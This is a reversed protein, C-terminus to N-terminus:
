PVVGQSYEGAAHVVTWGLKQGMSPPESKPIMKLHRSVPREMGTYKNVQVMDTFNVKYESGERIFVTFEAGSWFDAELLSNTEQDFPVYWFEPGVGEGSILCFWQVHLSTNPPVVTELSLRAGGRLDM